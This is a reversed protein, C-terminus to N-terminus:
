AQQDIVLPVGGATDLIAMENRTITSTVQDTLFDLDNFTFQAWAGTVPNSVPDGLPFGSFM